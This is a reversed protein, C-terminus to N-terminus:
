GGKGSEGHPVRKGYDTTDRKEANDHKRSNKGREGRLVSPSLTTRRCGEILDRKKRQWVLAKARVIGLLRQRHAMMKRTEGRFRSLQIVCNRAREVCVLVWGEKKKLWKERCAPKTLLALSSKRKKVVNCNKGHKKKRGRPGTWDDGSGGSRYDKPAHPNKRPFGKKNKSM